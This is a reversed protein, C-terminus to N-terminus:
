RHNVSSDSCDIEKYNPWTGENVMECYFEAQDQAEQRDLSGAILTTAIIIGVSFISIAIETPM